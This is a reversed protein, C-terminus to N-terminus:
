LESNILDKLEQLGFRELPKGNVYFSPTKTANLIKADALDQAVIENLKPDMIDKALKEMDLNVKYLIKWLVDLNAEHNSVWYQQTAFMMELAEEFKGQKKAAMLMKVAYDSGKHFPAYRYVLKIKGENKKMIEKVYPHFQACTGCAPDFFEVLEVKANPNGKVVSHERVFIAANAKAVARMEESQKGKYVYGGVIFLVLLAVMSVIVIKKNKMIKIRGKSTKPM